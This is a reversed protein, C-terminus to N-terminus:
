RRWLMVGPIGWLPLVVALWDHRLILYFFGVQASLPYLSIAFYKVSTYINIYFFELFILIFLILLTLPNKFKKFLAQTTSIEVLMFLYLFILVLPVNINYQFLDVFRWLPVIVYLPFPTSLLFTFLTTSLYYEDEDLGSVKVLELFGSTWRHSCLFYSLIVVLSLQLLSARSWILYLNYVDDFFKINKIYFNLYILSIIYFPLIFTYSSSKLHWWLLKPLRSM